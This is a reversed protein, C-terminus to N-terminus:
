NWTDAARNKMKLLPNPGMIQRTITKSFSGREHCNHIRESCIWWKHLLCKWFSCGSCFDYTEFQDTNLRYRRWICHVQISFVCCFSLKARVAKTSCPKTLCSCLQWFNFKKYVLFGFCCCGYSQVSAVKLWAWQPRSGVSESNLQSPSSQKKARHLIQSLVILKVIECPWLKWIEM